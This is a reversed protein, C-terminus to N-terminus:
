QVSKLFEEIKRKEQSEPEIELFNKYARVADQTQGMKRYLEALILHLSADDPKWSLARQYLEIAVPIENRKVKISALGKMADVSKSNIRQAAKYCKDAESLDENLLYIDGLLVHGIELFPNSYVEVKAAELAEDKKGEALLIRAEYYNLKPFTKMRQKALNLNERSLKFNNMLYYAEAVAVRVNLDGPDNKLYNSAYTIFDSWRGERQNVEMLYFNLENAGDPLQKLEKILNDYSSIQGSRYYIIAIKNLLIPDDPMDKLVQRLYGVASEEGATEYLIDAYLSRYKSNAPDIVMALNLLNKALDFNNNKFYNKALDYLSSDGIPNIKISQQLWLISKLVEGKKEYYKSMAVSFDEQAAMETQSLVGVLDGANDLKYADIYIKFLELLLPLNNPDNKRFKELNDIALGFYGLRSQVKALNLEAPFYNKYVENAKIANTLALDWVGNKLNEISKNIYNISKSEKILNNIKEDNANAHLGALRIRLENNEEIKLSEMLVKAARSPNNNLASFEGLYSLYQAYYHRSKGFELVEVRRLIDETRGKDQAKLYFLAGHLLIEVSKQHQTLAENFLNWYNKEDGNIFYFDLISSYVYPSKRELTMLQNIIKKGETLEGMKLLSKLYLSYLLPTVKNNITKYKEMLLKIARYKELHYFFLCKATLVNLDTFEKGEGLIQLIKFVTNAAITKNEAHEIMLAYNLALFGLADKNKEDNEYSQKALPSSILLEEFSYNKNKSKAEQLLEVSLKQDSEDFPSPFDFVPNVFHTNESKTSKQKEENEDPLYMLITFLVLIIVIISKSKPNKMVTKTNTTKKLNEIRKWEENTSKDQETLVSPFYESKNIITTKDSNHENKIIQKEVRRIIKDNKKVNKIEDNEKQEQTNKTTKLNEYTASIEKPSEKLKKFITLEESTSNETHFLSEFEPYEKITQWENAGVIKCRATSPVYGRQILDVVEDNNLPGLEQNNVTLYYNKM